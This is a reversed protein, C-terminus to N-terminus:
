AINIIYLLRDEFSNRYVKNSATYEGLKDIITEKVGDGEKTFLYYNYLIITFDIFLIKM